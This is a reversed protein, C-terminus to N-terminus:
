MRFGVTLSLVHAVGDYKGSFSPWTSNAGTLIVAMYGADLNFNYWRYGAGATLNVRTADPLEPTITNVPSPTLDYMAGARIRWEPNLAYEGGLHFSWSYKWNKAQFTSLRPNEFTISLDTIRQWGTYDADFALRLQPMPFYGVGLGFTDPLRLTTSVKQDQLLGQEEPPVDTFHAHGTIKVDGRSRYTAGFSLMKPIVDVMVGVNGSVGWGGGGLEVRAEREGFNLAKKLDATARVVSVGIGVRIREHLRIAASPNLYYTKLDAQTILQRGIWNEPWPVVLGFPVFLGMGVTIDDTLGLAAYIHPPPAVNFKTSVSPGGAPQFRLAPYILTDGVQIDITRGQVLGAPNYLIASADDVHGKMATGMGTARADHVDIEFASAQAIRAALLMCFAIRSTM